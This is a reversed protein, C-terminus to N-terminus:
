NAGPVTRSAALQTMLRYGVGPETTLLEPRAPIAEIKERLHAM